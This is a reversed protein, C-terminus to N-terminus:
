WKLNNVNYVQYYVDRVADANSNQTNEKRKVLEVCDQLQLLLSLVEFSALLVHVDEILWYVILIVVKVMM